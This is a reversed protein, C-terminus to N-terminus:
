FGARFALSCPSTSTYSLSYNGSTNTCLSQSARDLQQFYCPHSYARMSLTNGTTPIGDDTKSDLYFAQATSMAGISSNYPPVYEHPGSENNYRMYVGTLIFNVGDSLFPGTSGLSPCNSASNTSYASGVFWFRSENFRLAPVATGVEAQTHTGPLVGTVTLFGAKYMHQLFDDREGTDIYTTAGNAQILGNGNGNTVGSFFHTARACDGPLCDYKNRFAGVDARLKDWESLQSRLEATAIMEKGAAVGGILLAIIVLVISMEILTFGATTSARLSDLRPPNAPSGNM